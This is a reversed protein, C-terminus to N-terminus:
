PWDAYVVIGNGSQDKVEVANVNPLQILECAIERMTIVNVSNRLEDSISKKMHAYFDSEERWVRIDFERIKFQSISEILVRKM